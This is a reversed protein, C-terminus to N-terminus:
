KKPNMQKYLSVAMWIMIIVGAALVLWLLVIRSGVAKNVVRLKDEGGLVYAPSLKAKALVVDGHLLSSVAATQQLGVAEVNPNGHALIFPGSGQALFVVDEQLWGIRVSPLNQWSIEAPYDFRVLWERDRVLALQVPQSQVVGAGTKVSYQSFRGRKIWESNEGNRSYLTGKYLANDANSIFELWELPYRGGSNFIYGGQELKSVPQKVATLAQGLESWQKSTRQEQRQLEATVADIAPPQMGESWRVRLFNARTAPLKVRTQELKEGAFDLRSLVAKKVLPRWRSLDDSQEIDVNFFAQESSQWNFDLSHIPLREAEPMRRNDIVYAVLKKQKSTTGSKEQVDIITGADTKHMKFALGELKSDENAYIPFLALSEFDSQQETKRNQRVKFSLSEGATNFMRMDAIDNRAVGVYFAEPLTFTQIGADGDPFVQIAFAFDDAKYATAQQSHATLVWCQCVMLCLAHAITIIHKM